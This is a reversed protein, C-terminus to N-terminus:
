CVMALSSQRDGAIFSLYCGALGSLTCVGRGAAVSLFADAMGVMARQGSFVVRGAGDKDDETGRRKIGCQRVGGVAATGARAQPRGTPPSM